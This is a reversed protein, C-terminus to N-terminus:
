FRALGKYGRSATPIRGFVEAVANYADKKRRYADVIGWYEEIHNDQVHPNGAKEWGDAWQFVIVGAVNTGAVKIQSAIVKGPNHRLCYSSYGTEMILAPKRRALSTMREIRQIDAQARRISYEGRFWDTIGLFANFSFVDLFDFGIDEGDQNLINSGTVPHRSDEQKIARYLEGLFSEVTNRSYKKLISGEKSWRFPMDNWISWMLIAPHGKDRKVYTLAIRKLKQLDAKSSYRIRSDPYCVNQIVMLGHKHALDLLPVPMPEYTRLTNIGAERIMQFDKEWAELPITNYGTKSGYSLSYCIGKVYYLQGNVYLNREDWTITAPKSLAEQPFVLFCTGALLLAAMRRIGRISM